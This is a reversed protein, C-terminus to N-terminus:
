AAKAEKMRVPARLKKKAGTLSEEFSRAIQEKAKDVADAFSKTSSFDCEVEETELRLIEGLENLDDPM